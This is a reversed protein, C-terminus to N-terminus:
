NKQLDKKSTEIKWDASNDPNTCYEKLIYLQMNGRIKGLVIRNSQAVSQNVIKKLKIVIKKELFLIKM